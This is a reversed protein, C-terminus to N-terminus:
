NTERILGIIIMTAIRSSARVYHPEDTLRGGSCSGRWPWQRGRQAGPRVSPSNTPSILPFIVAIAALLSPQVGSTWNKPAKFGGPNPLFFNFLEFDNDAAGVKAGLFNKKLRQTKIRLFFIEFFKEAIKQFVMFNKSFNKKKFNRILFSVLNKKLIETLLNLFFDPSPAFTSCGNLVTSNKGFISLNQKM